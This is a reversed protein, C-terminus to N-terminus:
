FCTSNLIWKKKFRGEIKMKVMRYIWNRRIQICVYMGNEMFNANGRNVQCTKAGGKSDWWICPLNITTPKLSIVPSPNQFSPGWQANFIDAAVANYWQEWWLIVIWVVLCFICSRVIWVAKKWALFMYSNWFLNEVSNEWCICADWVYKIMPGAVCEFPCGLSLFAVKLSTWWYSVLKKRKQPSSM